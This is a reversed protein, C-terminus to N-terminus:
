EKKELFELTWKARQAITIRDSERYTDLPYSIHDGARFKSQDKDKSLRHLATKSLGRNNALQWRVHPHPDDLLKELAEPHAGTNGALSWRVLLTAKDKDALELSIDLSISKALQQNRALSVLTEENEEKLFRLAHENTLNKSGAFWSRINEDPDQALAQLVSESTRADDMLYLKIQQLLLKDSCTAIFNEFWEIPIQQSVENRIVRGVANSSVPFWEDSCLLQLHAPTLNPNKSLSHRLYSDPAQILKDILDSSINGFEAVAWALVLDMNMLEILREESTDPNKIEKKLKRLMYNTM